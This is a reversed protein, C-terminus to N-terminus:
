HLNSAASWEAHGPPNSGSKDTDTHVILALAIRLAAVHLRATAELCFPCHSPWRSRSQERTV